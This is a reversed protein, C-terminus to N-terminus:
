HQFTLNLWITLSKKPKKQGHWTADLIKLKSVLSSGLSVDTFAGLGLWRVALTSWWSSSILPYLGPLKHFLTSTIEPHCVSTKPISNQYCNAPHIAASLFSLLFFFFFFLFCPLWNPLQQLLRFPLNYLQSNSLNIDTHPLSPIFFFIFVMLSLILSSLYWIYELLSFSIRAEPVWVDM